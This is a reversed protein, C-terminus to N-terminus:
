NGAIGTYITWNGYTTEWNTEQPGRNGDDCLGSILRGSENKPPLSSPDGPLLLRYRPRGPFVAATEPQLLQKRIPRPWPHRKSKNFFFFFVFVFSVFCTDRLRTIIVTTSLVRGHCSAKDNQHYVPRVRAFGTTVCFTAQRAQTCSHLAFRGNRSATDGPARYNRGVFPRRRAISRSEDCFGRTEQMRATKSSKTRAGDKTSGKEREREKERKTGGQLKALLNRNSTLM